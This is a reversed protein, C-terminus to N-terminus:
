PQEVEVQQSKEHAILVDIADTIEVVHRKQTEVIRKAKEGAAITDAYEAELMRLKENQEQLADNLIVRATM